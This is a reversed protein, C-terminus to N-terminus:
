RGSGAVDSRSHDAWPETAMEALHGRIERVTMGHAYMSVIRGDFGAFRRAHKPILQPEFTGARDRPVNIRVPGDDTLVTKSSRRNRHAGRGGEAGALHVGM